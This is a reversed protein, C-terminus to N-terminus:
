IYVKIEQYTRPATDTFAYGNDTKRFSFSGVSYPLTQPTELASGNNYRIVKDAYLCMTYTSTGTNMILTASIVKKGSQEILHESGSTFTGVAGETSGVGGGGGKVTNQWM